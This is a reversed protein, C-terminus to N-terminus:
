IAHLEDSSCAIQMKYCTLRLNKDSKIIQRKQESKCMSIMGVTMFIQIKDSRDRNFQILREALLEIEGETTMNEAAAM